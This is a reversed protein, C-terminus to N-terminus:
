QRDKLTEYWLAWAMSGLIDHRSFRWMPRDRWVLWRPSWFDFIIARSLSSASNEIPSPWRVCSKCSVKQSTKLAPFVSGHQCNLGFISLNYWLYNVLLQIQETRSWSLHCFDLFFLIISFTTWSGIKSFLALDFQFSQFIGNTFCAWLGHFSEILEGSNSALFVLLLEIPLM